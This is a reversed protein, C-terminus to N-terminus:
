SARPKSVEREGTPRRRYRRYAYALTIAGITAIAGGRALDGRFAVLLIGLAVALVGLNLLVVIRWFAVIVTRPPIPKGRQGAGNPRSPAEATV